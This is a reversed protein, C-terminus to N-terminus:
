NNPNWPFSNFPYLNTIRKGLRGPSATGVLFFCYTSWKLKIINTKYLTIMLYIISLNKNLIQKKKDQKTM